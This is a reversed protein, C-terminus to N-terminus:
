PTRSRRRASGSRHARRRRPCSPTGCSSARVTNSTSSRKLGHYWYVSVATPCTRTCTACRSPSPPRTSPTPRRATRARSTTGRVRSVADHPRRAAGVLRAAPPRGGVQGVPPRIGRPRRACGLTAQERRQRRARERADVLGLDVLEELRVRGSHGAAAGGSATRRAAPAHRGRALDPPTDRRRSTRAVDVIAIIVLFAAFTIQTLYSPLGLMTTLQGVFAVAVVGMLIGLPQGRGGSLSLGGLLTAVIALILLQPGPDPNASSYSYALLVGGLAALAGSAAFAGVVLRAVPVGAVRAARRDSGTARLERGLRTATLIGAALLFAGLLILSRPSFVGLVTQDIGLTVEPNTYTLSLGGTIMSALGLTAILTGLTVALSPSRTIAILAGQALGIALGVGVGVLLGVFANEAGFSVALVGGLVHIGTVSLDFEGAIMTLGLALAIFGFQAAGQFGNYVDFVRLGRGSALPVVVFAIAVIAIALTPILRDPRRLFGIRM